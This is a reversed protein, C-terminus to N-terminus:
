NAFVSDSIISVIDHDEFSLGTVTNNLAGNWGAGLDDVNAAVVTTGFMWMGGGVNLATTVGAGRPVTSGIAGIVIISGTIAICTTTPSTAERTFISPTVIDSLTVTLTIPGGTPTAVAISM